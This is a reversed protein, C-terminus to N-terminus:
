EQGARGHGAELAGSGAPHPHPCARFRNPGNDNSLTVPPCPGIGGTAARRRNRVVRRRSLALARDDLDTM